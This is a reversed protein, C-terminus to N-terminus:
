EKFTEYCVIEDLSKRVKPRGTQKPFGLPLLAVIRYNEPIREYMIQAEKPLQSPINLGEM